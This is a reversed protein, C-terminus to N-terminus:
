VNPLRYNNIPSQYDTVLSQKSTVLSILLPEDRRIAIEAFEPFQFDMPAGAIVKRVERLEINSTRHETNSTKQIEIKSSTEPKSNRKEFKAASSWRGEGREGCLPTPLPLAAVNGVLHRKLLQTHKMDKPKTTQKM